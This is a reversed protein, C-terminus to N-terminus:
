VAQLRAEISNGSKRDCPLVVLFSTGKGIESVVDIHGDHEQVIRRALSLGLGTGNGKTTFFPRFINPLHLAPIGRGTDSVTIAVEKERGKIGVTVTGEGDIAQVANLLLNLLVQHMQDSDHEIELPSPLRQFRIEIPKSLVQQRVLMVAHEVTTNVDCCRMEPPRPRATELLDTLIRNIQAIEQRIDKVVSKAPSSGPLDRAV